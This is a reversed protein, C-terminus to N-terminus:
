VSGILQYAKTLNPNIAVARELSEVADAPQGANLYERGLSFHGLENNPDDGAMKRFQEIRSAIDAM